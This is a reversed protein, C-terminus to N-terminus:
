HMIIDDIDIPPLHNFYKDLFVTNRHCYLVCNCHNHIHVECEVYFDDIQRCEAIIGGTEYRGVPIGGAYVLVQQQLNMNKFDSLKMIITNTLYYQQPLLAAQM